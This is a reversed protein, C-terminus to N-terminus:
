VRDSRIPGNPVSLTPEDIRADNVRPDVPATELDPPRGSLTELLARADGTALPDPDLWDSILPVPVLLPMRDHVDAAVGSAATTLLAVTSRTTSPDEGSRWLSWIAAVPAPGRDCTRILYPHKRGGVSAWEYWADVPVICRQRRIAPGFLRSEVAGESRANIPRPGARPDRAWSPIFGWELQGLRRTEGGIIAPVLSSPAVNHRPRHDDAAVAVANFTRALLDPSSVQVFRGCM